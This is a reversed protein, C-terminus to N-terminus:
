TQTRRYTTELSRIGAYLLPSSGFISCYFPWFIASEHRLRLTKDVLTGDKHMVRSRSSIQLDLLKDFFGVVQM